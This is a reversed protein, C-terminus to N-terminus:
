KKEQCCTNDFSRSDSIEVWKNMPCRTNKMLVKGPMFCGCKKCIKLMKSFHECHKCIEYRIESYNMISGNERMLAWRTHSQVFM